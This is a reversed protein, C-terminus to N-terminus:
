YYYPARSDKFRNGVVGMLPANLAEISHVADNVASTLTGASVVLLIGKALTALTRADDTALLPPTDVIVIDYQERAEDYIDAFRRSLLDGAEPDHVTPLLWVGEAWGNTVAQDLTSRGRLVGSLGKEDRLGTVRGLGPRRLDADVLLVKMGLRALAESLLAATTTKGDSPAPSTVVILDVGGERLQPELNARLIRFASGTRPENLAKLPRQRLSRSTPIRGVVPYGTVKAVDRWSRVRPRGREILVSAAIGLLIGVFAAAAELLRRPPSAPETPPLAEAVLTADLLRDTAAFDLVAGAFANAAEAAEEPTDLRVTVALNGTDTPINADVARALTNADLDLQGAIEEVTSPATAFAVYKPALVRVSDASASSATPQPSIGVIAEGDYQSPLSEVYAAAAVTFAIAVVLAQKWRWRLAELLAPLGEEPALGRRAVRSRREDAIETTSVPNLVYPGSPGGGGLIGM